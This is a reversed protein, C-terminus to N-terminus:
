REFAASAFASASVWREISFDYEPTLTDAAFAYASCQLLSAESLPMETFRM